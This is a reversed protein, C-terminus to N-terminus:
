IEYDAFGSLANAIRIFRDRHEKYIDMGCLIISHRSTYPESFVAAYFQKIFELSTVVPTGNPGEPIYRSCIRNALEINKEHFDFLMSGDLGNIFATYNAHNDLKGGIM